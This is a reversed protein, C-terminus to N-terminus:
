DIRLNHTGDVLHMCDCCVVQGDVALHFRDCGCACAIKRVEVTDSEHNDRQDDLNIINTMLRGAQRM